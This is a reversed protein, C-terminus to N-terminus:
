IGPCKDFRYVTWLWLGSLGHVLGWNTSWQLFMWWDGLIFCWYPPVQQRGFSDLGFRNPTIAYCWLVLAAFTALVLFGWGWRPLDKTPLPKNREAALYTAQRNELGQRFRQRTKMKQLEKTNM